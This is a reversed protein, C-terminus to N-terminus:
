ARGDRLRVRVWGPFGQTQLAGLVSPAVESTSAALALGLIDLRALTV